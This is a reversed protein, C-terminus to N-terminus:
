RGMQRGGPTVHTPRLAVTRVAAPVLARLGDWTRRQSLGVRAAVARGSIGELIDRVVHPSALETTPLEAARWRYSALLDERATTVFRRAEEETLGARVRVQDVLEDAEETLVRELPDMTLSRVCDVTPRRGGRVDAEGGNMPAIEKHLSWALPRFGNGRLPFM